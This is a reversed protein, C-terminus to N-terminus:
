NLRKISLTANVGSGLTIGAALLASMAMDIVAGAPLNVIVSGSYISGTGVSLARSIATAAINTGNSRVAMTVTTAVSVSINSYYNIEYIGANTVTISNNTAYTANLNPM